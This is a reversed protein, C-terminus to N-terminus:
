RYRAPRLDPCKRFNTVPILKGGKAQLVKAMETSHRDPTYSFIGIDEANFDRLSELEKKIMPGNLQDWGYKDVVRGVIEKFLLIATFGMPYMYTRYTPKRKNREFYKNMLQVGRNGTESWNAYTHLAVAEEMASRDIILCSDDLAAGAIGVKYGMQKATKAIAVPGQSLSNTFIWDAGKARLRMLQNTVDVDRVGFLEVGVVEIGRSKAHNFVEDYLVGKGLTTDWTLFALKPSRKEQWTEALWDLFLGCEDAYTVFSGFVYSPPYVVETNSTCLGPMQDENFREKLAECVGSILVYIMSPRPKMERMQMYINVGMDGKGASDRVVVELPVGRIGGTENIYEAVDMMAANAPGTVPAYPGTMDAIVGFVLKEPKGAALAIGSIGLVVITAILLALVMTMKSLSKKM